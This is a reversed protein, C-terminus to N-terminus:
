RHLVIGDYIRKAEERTMTPNDLMMEGIVWSEQQARRMVPISKTKEMLADLEPHPKCPISRKKTM